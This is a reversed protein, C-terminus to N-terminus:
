NLGLNIRKKYILNHRGKYLFVIALVQAILIFLIFSNLGSLLSFIITLGGWAFGAKQAWDNRRYIGYGIGFWFVSCVLFFIPELASTDANLRGAFFWLVAVFFIVYSATKLDNGNVKPVFKDKFVGEVINAPYWETTGMRRIETTYYNIKSNLKKKIDSASVPGEITKDNKLFWIEAQINRKEYEKVIIEIDHVSHKQSEDKIFLSLEENSLESVRANLDARKSIIQRAAERANSCYTRSNTIKILDTDSYQKLNELYYEIHM